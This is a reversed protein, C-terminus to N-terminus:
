CRANATARLYAVPSAEAVALEATLATATSATLTQPATSSILETSRISRTKVVGVNWHDCLYFFSVQGHVSGGLTRWDAVAFPWEIVAAGIQVVNSQFPNARGRTRGYDGDKIYGAISAAMWSREVISAQEASVVLPQVVSFTLAMVIVNGVSQLSM